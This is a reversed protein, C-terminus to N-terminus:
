GQKTVQVRVNANANTPTASGQRQVTVVPTAKPSASRTRSSNPTAHPVRRQATPLGMSNMANTSTDVAITGPAGPMPPPIIQTEAPPREMNMPIVLVPQNTTQVSVTNSQQPPQVQPQEVQPQQDYPLEDFTTEKIGEQPEPLQPQQVNMGKPLEISFTNSSRSTLVPIAPVAAAAEKEEEEEKTLGLAALDEPRVEPEEPPQIMAPVETDLLIREPLATTLLREEEDAVIEGLPPGRFHKVDTETLVRMGMNLYANMEQDLLKYAYPIEIKSFTAVSRKL